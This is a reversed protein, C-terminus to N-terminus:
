AERPCVSAGLFLDRSLKDSPNCRQRARGGPASCSIYYPVSEYHM